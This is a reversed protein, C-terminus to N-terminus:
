MHSKRQETQQCENSRLMYPASGQPKASKMTEDLSNPTPSLIFSSQAMKPLPKLLYSAPSPLRPKFREKYLQQDPWDFTTSKYLNLNLRERFDIVRLRRYAYVSERWPHIFSRKESRDADVRIELVGFEKDGQLRIWTDKMPRDGRLFFRTPRSSGRRKLLM